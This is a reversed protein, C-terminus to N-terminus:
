KAVKSSKKDIVHATSSDKRYHLSAEWAEKVLQYLAMAARADEVQRGCALKDIDLRHCNGFTQMSQKALSNLGELLADHLCAYVKDMIYLLQISNMSFEYLNNATVAM